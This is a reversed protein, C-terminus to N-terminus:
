APRVYADRSIISRRRCGVDVRAGRRAVSMVIARMAALAERLRGCGPLGASGPRLSVRRLLREHRKGVTGGSRSHDAVSAADTRLRPWSGGRPDQTAVSSIGM